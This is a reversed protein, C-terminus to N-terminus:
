DYWVGPENDVKQVDVRGAVLKGEMEVFKDNKALTAKQGGGRFYGFRFDGNQLLHSMACSNKDNGGSGDNLIYSVFDEGNTDRNLYNAYPRFTYFSPLSDDM